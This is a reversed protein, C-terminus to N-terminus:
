YRVVRYGDFPKSYDFVRRGYTKIAQLRATELSFQLGRRDYTAQVLLELEVVSVPLGNQSLLIEDVMPMNPFLIRDGGDMARVLTALAATLLKPDELRGMCLEWELKRYVEAPDHVTLSIEEQDEGSPEDDVEELRLVDHTTAVRAHWDQCLRVERQVEDVRPDLGRIACQSSNHRWKVITLREQDRRHRAVVNPRCLSLVRALQEGIFVVPRWYMPWERGLREDAGGQGSSPSDGMTLTM